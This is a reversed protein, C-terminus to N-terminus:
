PYCARVSLPVVKIGPVIALDFDATAVVSHGCEEDSATFTPTIAPGVYREQAYAVTKAATDCLQANVASCRAATQVSYDLSSISLVLMGIWISGLIMTALVPLIFAFEIATAGSQERALRRLFTRASM